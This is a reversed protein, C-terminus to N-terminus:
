YKLNCFLTILDQRFKSGTICYLYFNVANNTTFLKHTAHAVFIYTAYSTPTDTFTNFDYYIYRVYIPLSVILFTVTVGLLMATLQRNQASKDDAKGLM